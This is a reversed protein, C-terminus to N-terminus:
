RAAAKLQSQLEALRTRDDRVVCQGIDIGVITGGANPDSWSLCDKARFALWARQAANLDSTAAAATLVAGPGTEVRTDASLIQAATADIQRDLALTQHALCNEEGATSGKDCAATANRLPDHAAISFLAPQTAGAAAAPATLDHVAPVLGVAAALGALATALVSRSRM